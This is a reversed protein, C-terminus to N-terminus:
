NLPPTIRETLGHAHTISPLLGPDQRLLSSLAQDFSEALNADAFCLRQPSPPFFHEIRPTFEGAHDQVQLNYTVTPYDGIYGDLRGHMLMRVAAAITGIRPLDDYHLGAEAVQDRMHGSGMFIGVMTMPANKPESAGKRAVTFLANRWFRYPRTPTCNLDDPLAWFTLADARGDKIAAVSRAFPLVLITGKHGMTAAIARLLDPDLGESKDRDTM